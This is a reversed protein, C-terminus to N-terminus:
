KGIHFGYKLRDEPDILFTAVGVVNATGTM